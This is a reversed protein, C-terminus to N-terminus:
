QGTNLFRDFKANPAHEGFYEGVAIQIPKHNEDHVVLTPKTRVNTPTSMSEDITRLPEVVTSLRQIALFTLM